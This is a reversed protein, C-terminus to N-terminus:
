FKRHDVISVKTLSPNLEIAKHAMEVAREHEDINAFAAAANTFYTAITPNLDIAKLYAEIADM